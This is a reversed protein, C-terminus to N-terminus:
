ESSEGGGQPSFSPNSYGKLHEPANKAAEKEREQGFLLATTLDKTALLPTKGNPLTVLYSHAGLKFVLLGSCRFEAIPPKRRPM